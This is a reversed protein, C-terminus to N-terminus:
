AAVELRGGTAPPTTLATQYRTWLEDAHTTDEALEHLTPLDHHETAQLIRTAHAHLARRWAHELVVTKLYDACAPPPANRHADLLWDGLNTIQQEGLVRGTSRAHTFVAVPHPDQGATVLEIVLQLVESAAPTGCDHARMGALLRRAAAAPLQLLCGLFATEPELPAPTPDTPTIM